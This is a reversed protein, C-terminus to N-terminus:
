KRFQATDATQHGSGLTESSARSVKKKFIQKFPYAHAAAISDLHYGRIGTAPYEGAQPHYYTGFLVDLIPFYVAYNKRQHKLEISHHIRHYQPSSLLWAAKGYGIRTNSHVFYSWAGILWALWVAYGVPPSKHYNFEVLLALPMIIIFYRIFGELFHQMLATTVNLETDAHHLMHITRLWGKTSHKYRHYWYQIFDGVFVSLLIFSYDATSMPVSINFAAQLHMSDRFFYAIRDTALMTIILFSFYYFINFVKSRLSSSKVAPLFFELVSFGLCYLVTEGTLQFIETLTDLQLM